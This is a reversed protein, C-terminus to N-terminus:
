YKSHEGLSTTHSVFYHDLLDNSEATATRSHSTVRTTAGSPTEQLYTPVPILKNVVHEASKEEQSVIAPTPDSSMMM